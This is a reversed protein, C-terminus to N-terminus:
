KELRLISRFDAAHEASLEPWRRRLQALLQTDSLPECACSTTRDDAERPRDDPHRAANAHLGRKDLRAAAEIEEYRELSGRAAFLYGQAVLARNIGDGRRPDAPAPCNVYITRRVSRRMAGPNEEHPESTCTLTTAQDLYTQLKAMAATGCNKGSVTECSKDPEPARTGFLEFTLGGAAFTNGSVARPAGDIKIQHTDNSLAKITVDAHAAGTDGLLILGLCGLFGFVRHSGM